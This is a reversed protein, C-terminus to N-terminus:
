VRMYLKKDINLCDKSTEEFYDDIFEDFLRTYFDRNEKFKSRTVDEDIMVSKYADIYLSKTITEYESKIKAIEEVILILGWFNDAYKSEVRFHKFEEENMQKWVDYKSYKMQNIFIEFTTYLFSITPALFTAYILTKYLTINNDVDVGIKSLVYTGFITILPIPLTLAM